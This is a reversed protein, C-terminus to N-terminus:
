RNAGAYLLGTNGLYLYIIRQIESRKGSETYVSQSTDVSGSNGDNSWSTLAGVIGQAMNSESLTHAKYLLEAIACTCDKVKDTILNNNAELRGFTYTDLEARAQKEWFGFEPDPVAQNKGLLYGEKYYTLEVYAM